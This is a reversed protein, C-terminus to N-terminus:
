NAGRRWHEAAQSLLRWQEKTSTREAQLVIRAVGLTPEGTRKDRLVRRAAGDLSEGRRLGLAQALTDYVRTLAARDIYGSGSM